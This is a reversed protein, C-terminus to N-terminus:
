QRPVVSRGCSSASRAPNDGLISAVVQTGGVLGVVHHPNISIPLGVDREVHRRALEEEFDAVQVVGPPTVAILTPRVAVSRRSTSASAEVIFSTCGCTKTM